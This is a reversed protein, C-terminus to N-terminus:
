ATRLETVVYAGDVGTIVIYRDEVTANGDADRPASALVESYHSFVVAVVEDNGCLDSNSADFHCRVFNISAGESVRRPREQRVVRKVKMRGVMYSARTAAPLQWWCRSCMAPVTPSPSGNPNGCSICSATM